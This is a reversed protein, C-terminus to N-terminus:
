VRLSFVEAVRFQGRAMLQMAHQMNQLVSGPAFRVPLAPIEWEWGGRVHLYKTFIAQLLESARLEASSKWPVGVLTIEAGIDALEM